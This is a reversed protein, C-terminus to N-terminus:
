ELSDYNRPSYKRRCYCHLATFILVGVCGAVLLASLCLMVVLVLLSVPFLGLKCRSANGATNELALSIDYTCQVAVDSSHSCTHSWHHAKYCSKFCPSSTNCTIGGVWVFGEGPSADTVAVANTYGLQRCVTDAAAQNFGQNCVTGWLHAQFVEVRGSSTASTTNENVLRVQGRYPAAWVMSTNCYVTVDLSHTCNYFTPSTARCRMLHNLNKRSCEVGDLFIPDSENGANGTKSSLEFRSAAAFGLQRCAVNAEKLTFGIGCVSGWIGSMDEGSGEDLLTNMHVELRGSSPAVDGDGTSQDPVLRIDGNSHTLVARLSAEEHVAFEHKDVISQVTSGRGDKNLQIASEKASHLQTGGLILVIILLM